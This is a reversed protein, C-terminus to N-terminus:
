RCLLPPHPPVQSVISGHRIRVSVDGEIPAADKGDASEVSAAGLVHSLAAAHRHVLHALAIEAVHALKLDAGCVQIASSGFCTYEGPTACSDQNQSGRKESKQLTAMDKATCFPLM